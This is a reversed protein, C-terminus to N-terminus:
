DNSPTASFVSCIRKNKTINAGSVKKGSQYSVKNKETDTQPMLRDFKCGFSFTLNADVNLFDM